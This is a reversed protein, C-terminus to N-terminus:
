ASQVFFNVSFSRFSQELAAKIQKNCDDIDKRSILEPLDYGINIYVHRGARATKIKTLQIRNQFSFANRVINDVRVDLDEDPNSDLLEMFSERMLAIPERVIIAAIVCALIPDIYRIYPALWTGQSMLALGFGIFAAFSVLGDARWVKADAFLIKSDTKRQAYICLRNMALCAIAAIGAYWIALEYNVDPTGRVFEIMALTIAVVAIGLILLSELNVIIPELKYYGYNFDRHHAKSLMHAAKLAILDVVVSFFSYASDIFVTISRGQFAIYAGILGSIIGITLSLRFVNIELLNKDRM